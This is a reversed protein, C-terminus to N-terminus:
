FPRFSFEMAQAPGFHRNARSLSEWVPVAIRNRDIRGGRLDNVCLLRAFSSVWHARPATTRALDEANALHHACRMAVVRVSVMQAVLMTEVPDRPRISTIMSIM